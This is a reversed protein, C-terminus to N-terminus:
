SASVNASCRTIRAYQTASIPMVMPAVNASDSTASRAAPWLPEARPKQEPMM